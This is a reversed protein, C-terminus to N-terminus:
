DALLTRFAAIIKPTDWEMSGTVKLIIEGDRDLIYTTPIARIGYRGSVEGSEDLAAPFSLGGTKMFDAVERRNEACNVALIELGSDKLQRYLTEMSPMESRCPGCWTTWFNLFVVKGKLDSLRKEGGNLVPLTFDVSAMKRAATKLGAERFSAAIEGSVREGPAAKVPLSFACLLVPVLLGKWFRNNQVICIRKM